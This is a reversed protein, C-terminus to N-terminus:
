ANKNKKAKKGKTPKSKESQPKLDDLEAVVPISLSHESKYKFLFDLVDTQVFHDFLKSSFVLAERVTLPLDLCENCIHVGRCYVYETDFFMRKGCRMCVKMTTATM